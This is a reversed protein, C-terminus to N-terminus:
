NRSKGLQGSQELKQMAEQLARAKKAPWVSGRAGNYDASFERIADVLKNFRKEFEQRQLKVDEASKQEYAASQARAQMSVQESQRIPDSSFQWFCFVITLLM